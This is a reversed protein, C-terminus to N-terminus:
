PLQEVLYIVTLILLIVMNSLILFIALVMKEALNM